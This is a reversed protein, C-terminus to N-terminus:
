RRMEQHADEPLRRTAKGKVFNIITARKFIYIYAGIVSIAMMFMLIDKITMNDELDAITQACTANLHEYQMASVNKDAIAQVQCDHAQQDAAAKATELTRRTEESTQCSAACTNAIQGQVGVIVGNVVGDKIAQIDASQNCNVVTVNQTVVQVTQNYQTNNVTINQVITINREYSTTVQVPITINYDIANFFVPSGGNTVAVCSSVNNCVISVNSTQTVTVNEAIVASSLLVGLLVWAFLKM